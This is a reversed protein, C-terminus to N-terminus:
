HSMLHPLAHIAMQNSYQNPFSSNEFQQYKRWSVHKNDQFLMKHTKHNMNNKLLGNVM